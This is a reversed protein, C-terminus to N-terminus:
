LPSALPLHAGRHQAAGHTDASLRDCALRELHPAYDPIAAALAARARARRMDRHSEGEMQRLFGQPFLSELDLTVPRLASAHEKLLRRGLTLGVVCVLLRGDSM